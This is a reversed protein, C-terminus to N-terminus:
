HSRGDGQTRREMRNFEDAIGADNSRDEDDDQLLFWSNRLVYKEHIILSSHIINKEDKSFPTNSHNNIIGAAEDEARGTFGAAEDQANSDATGVIGATEAIHVFRRFEADTGHFFYFPDDLAAGIGHGEDAPNEQSIAIGQDQRRVFEYGDHLFAVFFEGIQVTDTGIRSRSVQDALRRFFQLAEAFRAQGDDVHANFAAVVFDQLEDIFPRRCGQGDFGPFFGQCCAHLQRRHNEEAQATLFPGLFMGQM